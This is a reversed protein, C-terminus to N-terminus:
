NIAVKSSLLQIIRKTLSVVERIYSTWEGLKDQTQKSTYRLQFPLVITQSVTHSFIPSIPCLM